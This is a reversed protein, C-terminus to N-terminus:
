LGTIRPQSKNKNRKIMNKTEIKVFKNMINIIKFNLYLFKMSFLIKILFFIKGIGEKKLYQFPKDIGNERLIDVFKKKQFNQIAKNQSFQIQVDKESNNDISVLIDRLESAELPELFYNKIRKGVSVIKIKLKYYTCIEDVVDINNGNTLFTIDLYNKNEDYLLNVTYDKNEYILTKPTFTNLIRQGDKVESAMIITTSSGEQFSYKNLLVSINEKGNIINIITRIIALKEDM